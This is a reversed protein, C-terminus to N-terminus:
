AAESKNNSTGTADPRQLSLTFCTGEGERSEVSLTGGMALALQRAQYAGIGFGGDKTSSFPRFLQTRIFEPSMGVGRDEVAVRVNAGDEELRIIVPADGPTADIANQVLHILLQELTHQDAMAWSGLGGVLQVPQQARKTVAVRMAVAAVDVPTVADIRVKEQQSLRQMMQGLRDASLRLTVIMDERFDPNDGHREVNRALLALQSTLNKVDHMMFAFRRHFEEFRASEALAESGRAEAIHSAAQRGAVKLLDFDEWDLARDLPPRTLLIIGEIRDLHLLPVAIWLDPITLLDSPVAVLEGAPARGNRLEDFQIIRGNAAMWRAMAAFDNDQAITLIGQPWIAAMSQRGSADPTLLVGGASEVIDAVAKLVRTNLTMGAGPDRSLTATFRLWEARYDYRHEFFHKTTWVRLRARLRPSRWVVLAGAGTGCLVLLQTLTGFSGLSTDVVMTFLSLIVLWAAVAALAVSRFAVPRSLRVKHGSPRVIAVALVFAIILAAFPRLGLLLTAPHNSLYSIAFLNLDYTWLGAIAALPLTLGRREDADAAEFLNHLLVLGGASFLMQLTDLTHGFDAQHGLMAPLLQLAAAVTQVSFLGIYIWGIQSIGRDGERRGAISAMFWLWGLNRIAEGVSASVSGIGALGLAALWLGMGLLAAIYPARALPMRRLVSGAALAAYALSGVLSVTAMGSVGLQLGTM